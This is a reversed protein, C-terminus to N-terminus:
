ARTDSEATDYLPQGMPARATNQQIYALRDHLMGLTALVKNLKSVLIFPLAIWAVALVLGLVLLFLGFIGYFAESM